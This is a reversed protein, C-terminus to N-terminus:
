VFGVYILSKADPLEPPPTEESDGGFATPAPQNYLVSDSENDSSIIVDNKADDDDDYIQNPPSQPLEKQLDNDNLEFQFGDHERDIHSGETDSMNGTIDGHVSGELENIGNVSLETGLYSQRKGTQSMNIHSVHNHIIHHSMNSSRSHEKHEMPLLISPRFGDSHNSVSERKQPPFLQGIKIASINSDTIYKPRIPGSQKSITSGASHEIHKSVTQGYIIHPHEQRPITPQTTGKSKKSSACCIKYICCAGFCCLLLIILFAGMVAMTAYDISITISNDDSNIDDIITTEIPFITSATM